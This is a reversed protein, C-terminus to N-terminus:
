ARQYSTATVFPDGAGRLVLGPGAYRSPGTGDPHGRNWCDGFAAVVDPRLQAGAAVLRELDPDPMGVSLQKRVARQGEEDGGLGRFPEIAEAPM